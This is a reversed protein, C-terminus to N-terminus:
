EGLLSDDGNIRWYQLDGEAFIYWFYMDCVLKPRIQSRLIAMSHYIDVLPFVQEAVVRKSANLGASIGM